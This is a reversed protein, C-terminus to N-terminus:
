SRVPLSWLSSRIDLLELKAESLWPAQLPLPCMVTRSAIHYILYHSAM